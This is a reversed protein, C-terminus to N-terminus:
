VSDGPREQEQVLSVESSATKGSTSLNRMAVSNWDKKDEKQVYGGAAPDVETVIGGARTATAHSEPPTKGTSAPESLRTFRSHVSTHIQSIFTPVKISKSIHRFLPPLIPLCASVIGIKTEVQLWITAGTASGEYM